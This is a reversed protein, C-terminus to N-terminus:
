DRALKRSLFLRYGITSAAVVGVFLGIVNGAGTNPLETPTLPTTPTSPTTFSVQQVCNANDPAFVDKGNVSFLVKATVTYTGDKAYQYSATTKNTTLPTSGDGWNLAVTKFSAGNKATYAVSATVMRNSGQSLSLLDCSFVPTTTPPTPTCTKNITVDATNYYYGMGSPQASAINRLGNAGCALKDATPLTAEFMVYANIGPAYDGIILGTNVVTNASVAKGSPYNGNTLVTSGPVYTIGQPLKDVIVVQNEPSNGTNKYGILYQVTAGPQATISTAWTKDGKVRVQKDISVGPVTVRALVTVTASFNYCPQENELVLGTGSNVISDSLVTDTEKINANTGTNHRWVASGPIYQLYADSRDLNVTTADTVTNSNDASITATQTQVKGASTPINIKVRLNQAIKGSDPLETNHYYVQLKVVQNYSANVSHAYTTNGATVNAAGMSGEIKVASAASTAVPLMIALTLLFGAFLRKPLSNILRSLKM